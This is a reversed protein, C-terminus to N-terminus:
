RTGEPSWLRERHEVSIMPWPMTEPCEAHRLQDIESVFFVKLCIPCRFVQCVHPDSEMRWIDGTVPPENFWFLRQFAIRGYRADLAITNCFSIM